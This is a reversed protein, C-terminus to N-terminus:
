ESLAETIFSQKQLLGDTIFERYIFSQWIM